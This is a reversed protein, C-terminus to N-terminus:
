WIAKVLGVFGAIFTGCLLLALAGFELNVFRTKRDPGNKM